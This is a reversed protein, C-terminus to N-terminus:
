VNEDPGPVHVWADRWANLDFYPMGIASRLILSHCGDCYKLSTDPHIFHEGAISNLCAARACKSENNRIVREEKWTAM